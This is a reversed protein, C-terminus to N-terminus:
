LQAMFKHTQPIIRVNRLKSLAIEQFFLQQEATPMKLKNHPTVPQIILPINPNLHYILNVSAMFEETLTQESVVIKVYVEKDLIKRLFEQHALFYNKGTLSPLKIDMSIIDVYKIIKELHASLTGNTELFIKLNNYSNKIECMLELLNEKFLLPEGGTFSVSHHIDPNWTKIIELIKNTSVPNKIHYFDRRGPTNEILCFDIQDYSTDCYECSLNCNCFRIFIQRYGIYPGEGQISSFIEILNHKNVLRIM